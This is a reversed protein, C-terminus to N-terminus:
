KLYNLILITTSVAGFLVSLTSFTGVNGRRAKARLPQVYLVDNPQLYFFESSLLKPDKLDILVAGVGQETQRLLTINGRNGFDTLDGAMGLGELVNAQNNYIYFHGPHKVEGLVTIKFSVLKVVINAKNLYVGVAEQIKDQAEAVTFGGVKVAGIEPLMILGESDISYSNLYVSLQNVNLMSNNPQLNFYESSETDLTKIRVSVIDQPQLKYSGAKNHITTLEETNFNTDPFYIMKKSPVCSCLLTVVCLLLCLRGAYNSSVFM